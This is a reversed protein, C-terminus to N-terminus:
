GVSRYGLLGFLSRRARDVTRMMVFGRVIPLIWLIATLGLRAAVVFLRPSLYFICKFLYKFLGVSSRLKRLLQQGEATLLHQLGLHEVQFLDDGVHLHHQLPHDALVDLQDRPEVRLQPGDLGIGPLDVLDVGLAPMTLRIAREVDPTDSVCVVVVEAGSSKEAYTRRCCEAGMMRLDLNYSDKSTIARHLTPDIFDPGCKFCQVEVGRKVLAAVIGLTLTTKGSGSKAAGIIFAPAKSM